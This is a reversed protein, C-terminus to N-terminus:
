EEQEVALLAAICIAHPADDAHIRASIDAKHFEASITDPSFNDIGFVYGREQMKEIVEWARNIKTSFRHVLGRYSDHRPDGPCPSTAYWHKHHSVHSKPFTQYSWGMVELAVKEDLGRGPKLAKIESETM